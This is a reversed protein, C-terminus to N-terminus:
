VHQRCGPLALAQRRFRLRTLRPIALGASVGQVAEEADSRNGLILCATRFSRPYGDKLWVELDDM